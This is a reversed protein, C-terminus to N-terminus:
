ALPPDCVKSKSLHCIKYLTVELGVHVIPTGHVHFNPCKPIHQVWLLLLLLIPPSPHLCMHLLKNWFTHHTISYSWLKASMNFWNSARAFLKSLGLFFINPFNWAKHSHAKCKAVKWFWEFTSLNVFITTCVILCPKCSNPKCFPWRPSQSKWSGHNAMHYINTKIFLSWPCSKRKNGKTQDHALNAWM